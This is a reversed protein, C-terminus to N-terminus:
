LGESVAFASSWAWQLNYGGCEGCVNLTEGCAFVDKTIKSQLNKDFERLPVGGLTSQAKSFSLNGAFDFTFAKTLSAIKEIDSNSLTSIKRSSLGAEKTIARAIQNATITFLLTEADCDPYLKSKSELIQILQSKGIEPLFDVVVSGSKHPASFASLLFSVPGSLAFESFHMEGSFTALNKSNLFFSATVEAKIGKLTKTHASTTKMQVLAPFVPTSTHGLSKLLKVGFGDTNLHPAANGGMAVVIKEAKITGNSTQIEFIGGNKKVASVQRSLLVNINKATINFRLLDVFSSASLSRPFIKDGITTTAIGLSAFYGLTNELNFNEIFFYCDDGFFKEKSLVTNGINGRGNGTQALKRMLREGGEIIAIDDGNYKKSALLATLVGSAGGGLIAIKFTKM